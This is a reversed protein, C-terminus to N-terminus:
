YYTQGPSKSWEIMEAYLEEFGSELDCVQKFDLGKEEMLYQVVIAYKFYGLNQITGDELEFVPVGVHDRNEEAQYKAIKGLLNNDNKFRRAIYDAHGELKWNLNVQHPKFSLTTSLYYKTDYRHQVAHMFEHALLVTLNYKRLEYNNMEWKFEATNKKFDPTSAYIVSNNFYTYATGSAIPHLNPYVSGDNLCLSIEIEENYIDSTNIIALANKIVSEAEPQLNSNYHVTVNDFTTSKAYVMSPNLMLMIWIACSVGLISLSSLLIRKITKKM